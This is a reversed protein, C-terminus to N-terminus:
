EYEKKLLKKFGPSVYTQYDGNEDSYIFYVDIEDVQNAIEISKELGSVMFSTAFADATMCDNALVTTSLLSHQVPYGTKPDITHAYKVGDEVYFNRYNGSTALARDTLSVIAKLKQQTFFEHDNPNSIGISWANGKANQGHAVVEGGIEVMFNECGQQQLFDAVLDCAFGKAIASADLMTNPHEKVLQGNEIHVKQYGTLALLSDILEPTVQEKNKFGFGWVNVMPAVTMDFAGETITSIEQARKFVTLFYPDLTTPENRNVKSITSTSDFTSMSQNLENMVAEIEPQLDKGGESEYTIHYVTGYVFGENSVYQKPQQCAAFVFLALLLIWHTRM